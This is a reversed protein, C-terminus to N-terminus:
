NSITSQVFPKCKRMIKFPRRGFSYKSFTERGVLIQKFSVDRSLAAHKLRTNVALLCRTDITSEGREDFLKDSCGVYSMYCYQLIARSLCGSIFSFM